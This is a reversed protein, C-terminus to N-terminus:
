PPTTGPAWCTSSRNHVGVLVACAPAELAVLGPTPGELVQLATVPSAGGIGGWGTGAAPTCSRDQEPWAGGVVLNYFRAYVGAPLRAYSLACTHCSGLLAPGKLTCEGPVRQLCAADLNHCGACPGCPDVAVCETAAAAAATCFLVPAPPHRPPMQIQTPSTPPFSSIRSSSAAGLARTTGRFLTTSTSPQSATAPLLGPVIASTSPVYFFISSSALSNNTSPSGTQLAATSSTTRVNSSGFVSSYNSPVSIADFKTTSSTTDSASEQTGNQAPEFAESGEQTTTYTAASSTVPTTNTSVNGNINVSFEDKFCFFPDARDWAVTIVDSRNCFFHRQFNLWIQRLKTSSSEDRSEDDSNQIKQDSIHFDPDYKKSGTASLITKKSPHSNDSEWVVILLLICLM